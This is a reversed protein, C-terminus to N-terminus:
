QNKVVALKKRSIILFAGMTLSSIILVFINFYINDGTKPNVINTYINNFKVGKYYKNNKVFSVSDVKLEGKAKDEVINITVTWVSDDYQYRQDNGLVEKVNLKYTGPKTFEFKGFTTTGEGTITETLENPLEMGDQKDATLNFKFDSKKKPTDGSITKEIDFEYDAPAVLRNTLTITCTKQENDCIGNEGKDAEKSDLLSENSESVTYKYVYEGNFDYKAPLDKFTYKWNNKKNLEVTEIVKRTNTRTDIQILNVNVADPLLAKGDYPKGLYLFEKKVTLDMDIPEGVRLTHNTAIGGGRKTAVNDVIKIDANKYEDNDDRALSFATTRNDYDDINVPMDGKTFRHAVEDSYWNITKGNHNRSSVTVMHRSLGSVSALLADDEDETSYRIENGRAYVPIDKKLWSDVAINGYISGGLTSNFEGESTPCLWIGGGVVARNRTIEVNKLNLAVNYNETFAIGGGDEARNHSITASKIELFPDSSKTANDISIGGGRTATNGDIIDGSITTIGGTSNDKKIAIGGGYGDDATSNNKIFNNKLEVQGNLISIGGGVLRGTSLLSEGKNEVKNNQITNKELTIGKSNSINIAGGGPSTTSKDFIYKNSEFKNNKISASATESLNSIFVAGGGSNTSSNNIFTSNTITLPTSSKANTNSKFAVASSTFGQFKLNEINLSFTLQGQGSSDTGVARIKSYNGNCIFGNNTNGSSDKLTLNGRTLYFVGKSLDKNLTGKCIISHGNFDLTQDRRITISDISDPESDPDIYIDDGLIANYSDNYSGLKSKLDDFNSITVEDMAKVNMPLYGIFSQMMILIAFFIKGLKKM